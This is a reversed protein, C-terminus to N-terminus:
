GHLARALETLSDVVIDPKSDLEDLPAKQRNVWCTLFGFTKAGIVDWSNSSVFGIAQPNLGLKQPALQYVRPSPKYVQVEDASIIQAFTHVLGARQVAAQLMRPVGNSLIVMAHGSLDVLASQVEPYPDLQLYSEMLRQRSEDSCRLALAKCAFTLARETVKWFDEYHGMLSLLWTYELQKQRWIQSLSQGKSPFLEECAAIVSHVDFLTGYADFALAQIGQLSAM